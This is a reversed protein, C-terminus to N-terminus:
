ARVASPDLPLELRIGTGRGDLGPGATATGGHEEATQRVMALGLGTGEVKGATAFPEFLRDQVESPIGPGDDAFELVLYPDRRDVSLRYRGGEPMAERANRTVNQVVRRLKTEDVRAPGRYRLDVEYEIGTGELETRLYDQMEGFFAHTQIKRLFLSRDGRAFALLDKTMSTLLGLQREVLEAYSSRKDPDDTGVMRQTYGSILMMPTRIDHIVGSLMQGIASLRQEKDRERRRREAEIARGLQGAVLGLTELGDDDLGEGGVGDLLELVGVVGDYRGRVPVAAVARFALGGRVMGTLGSLTIPSLTRAVSGVVGKGLEVPEAALEAARAGRAVLPTLGIARDDLTHVVGARAELRVLATEVITGLMRELDSESATIARETEFLLALEGRARELARTREVEERFLTAVELAIGIESTIAELLRDDDDDFSGTKKNLVQLVGIVQGGHPRRIPWTLIDRTRFGSRRDFEPNFRHDQYADRIRLPEGRAAVWGAVGAGVPMRIERHESGELVKSWLEHEVEDLLFLTSRDADVLETTCRVIEDLLPDLEPTTGLARGIQKMASVRRESRELAAELEIVRAELAAVEPAATTRPPAM